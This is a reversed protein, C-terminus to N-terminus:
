IEEISITKGQTKVSLINQRNICRYGANQMDYVLLHKTHDVTSKGGKLHKTVGTRCTMTRVTGDAKTFTVTIIKGKSDAVHNELLNTM